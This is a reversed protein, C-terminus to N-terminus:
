YVMLAKAYTRPRFYEGSNTFIQAAPTFHVLDYLVYSQDVGVSALIEGSPHLALATVEGAHSSFQSIESGNEFVQVIGSSTSIIPRNGAWLIDTIAGSRGKLTQVVRRDEISYIGASGDSGGLLVLEGTENLAISRSGPYLPESQYKM